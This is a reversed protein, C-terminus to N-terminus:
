DAFTLHDIHYKVIIWRFFRWYELYHNFKVIQGERLSRWITDMIAKSENFDVKTLLRKEGNPFEFLVADVRHSWPNVKAVLVTLEITRDEVEFGYNYFYVGNAGFIALVFLILLVRRMQRENGISCCGVTNTYM